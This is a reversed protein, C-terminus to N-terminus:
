RWRTRRRWLLSWSLAEACGGNSGLKAMAEMVTVEAEKLVPTLEPTKLTVSATRL